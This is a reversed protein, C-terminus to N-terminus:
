YVALIKQLKEVGIIRMFSALRPGQEKGILVRYMTTFFAKGEMGVATAADYIRQQVEKDTAGEALTPVVDDRVRCVAQQETQSLTAKSGDERLTFCM